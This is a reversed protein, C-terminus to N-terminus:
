RDRSAPADAELVAQWRTQHRPLNLTTIEMPRRVTQPRTTGTSETDDSSPAEAAARLSAAITEPVTNSVSVRRRGEGPGQLVAHIPEGVVPKGEVPDFRVILAIERRVSGAADWPIWIHYSPGTPGKGYHKELQERTFVYKRDPAADETKPSLEDYAYVTLRGDVRVSNKQDSGYFSVRGGFGRTARSGEQEFVANTWVAAVTNPAVM